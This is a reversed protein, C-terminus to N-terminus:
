PKIRALFLFRCNTPYKTGDISVTEPYNADSAGTLAGTKAEAVAVIGVNGNVYDSNDLNVTESKKLLSDVKVVRVKHRTINHQATAQHSRYGSVTERSSVM